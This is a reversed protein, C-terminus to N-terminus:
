TRDTKLRDGQGDCELVANLVGDVVWAMKEYDLTEATDNRTHYNPNRVYATDTIMVANWGRAWYNRHDSADLMQRPGSFSLVNVGGASCMASKVRKVLARDDWGGTVAIFDGRKPYMLDLVWSNWRQEGRFYGIMELCIMGRVRRNAISEAHIASGMQESGFFPPEENAYAVLAVSMTLQERALLRALELLGATGSANDDAGPLENFADYHAGVVLLEKTDPGFTAIVNRYTRGRATFVQETVVAGTERLESAIYAPDRHKTLAVVDARLRSADARAHARHPTRSFLVPQRIAILAATWLV